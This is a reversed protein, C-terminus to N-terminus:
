TLRRASEPPDADDNAPRPLNDNGPATRARRRDQNGGPITVNPDPTLSPAITRLIEIQVVFIHGCEETECVIRAERALPTIQESTRVSGPGHCHPCPIM